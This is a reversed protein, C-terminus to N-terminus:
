NPTSIRASVHVSDSGTLYELDQRSLALDVAASNDEIQRLTKVGTLVCTVAPHALAWRIAVQAQTAGHREAIAKIRDLLALNREFQEGQFLPSRQRLDSGLFQSDRGYKGSFLGQALANYILVSMRCGTSAQEIAGAFQTEALSYPLQISEMRRHAVAQQVLDLSFNCCGISGIKGAEQCKRLADLTETIPTQRDPWHVQYVPIRDVKLRRLSGELAEVVRAASLDRTTRGHADWKIGFKTAIVVDHRRTGLAQSLIEEAHGFGYVDATDFFNIGLDLARGIAEISQRDDVTGYDYGGIAACGFGIRSINLDTLGFRAYQM